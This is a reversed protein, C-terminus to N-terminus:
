RVFVTGVMGWMALVGVCVAAALALLSRYIRSAPSWAGGRWAIAAGALLALTLLAALIPLVVSSIAKPVESSTSSDAQTTSGSAHSILTIRPRGRAEAGPSARAM